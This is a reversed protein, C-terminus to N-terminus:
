FSCIHKDFFVRTFSWASTLTPSFSTCQILSSLNHTLSFHKKNWQQETCKFPKTVFKTLQQFKAMMIWNTKWRILVCEWWLRWMIKKWVRDSPMDSPMIIGHTEHNYEQQLWLINKLSITLGGSSASTSVAAQQIRSPQYDFLYWM